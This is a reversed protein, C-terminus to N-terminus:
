GLATRALHGPVDGLLEVLYHAEIGKKLVAATLGQVGVGELIGVGDRDGLAIVEGKPRYDAPRLARGAEARLLNEAALEGQYLARQASGLNAWPRRTVVTGFDGLAFVEPHGPVQLFEDVSFPSAPDLDELDVRRVGSCWYVLEAELVEGSALRVGSPEVAQITAGLRVDIGHRHLYRAAYRRQEERCQSRAMLVEDRELVTITCRSAPAKQRLMAAVELGEIGAGCVVVRRRPGGARDIGLFRVRRGGEAAAEYTQLSVAHEAAGPVGFTNTQGGLALVLRDYPVEGDEVAVCRRSFDVAKVRARRFGCRSARALAPLSFRVFLDRSRSVAIEHFRTKITHHEGADVLLISARSADLDRGLRRLAALGGYGGGLIVIQRASM